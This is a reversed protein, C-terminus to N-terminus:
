KIKTDELVADTDGHRVSQEETCGRILVVRVLRDVLHALSECLLDILVNPLVARATLEAAEAEDAVAHTPQDGTSRHWVEFLILVLHMTEHSDAAWMQAVHVLRALEERGAHPEDLVPLLGNRKVLQRHRIVLVDLLGGDVLQRFRLARLPELVDNKDSAILILICGEITSANLDAAVRRLVGFSAIGIDLHDVINQAAAVVKFNKVTEVDVEINFVVRHVAENPPRRM